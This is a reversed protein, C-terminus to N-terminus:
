IPFFFLFCSYSFSPFSLIFVFVCSETFVHCELSLLLSHRIFLSFSYVFSLSFLCTRWEVACRFGPVHCGGVGCCPGASSDRCGLLTTSPACFTAASLVRFPIELASEGASARRLREPEEAHAGSSPLNVRSHKQRQMANQRWARDEEAARDRRARVCMCVCRHMYSPMFPFTYLTVSISRMDLRLYYISKAFICIYVWFVRMCACVFVCLNADLLFWSIHM